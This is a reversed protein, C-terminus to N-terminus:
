SAQWGLQAKINAWVRATQGKTLGMNHGADQVASGNAIMEAM